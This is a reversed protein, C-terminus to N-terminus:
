ERPYLDPRLDHRSVGSVEEVKLVREAPVHGNRLWRCITQQRVGCKTALSLQTGVNAIANKIAMLKIKERNKMDKNNM